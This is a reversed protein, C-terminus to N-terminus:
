DTGVHLKKLLDTILTKYYSKSDLIYFMNCATFSERNYERAIDDCAKKVDDQDYDHVAILTNPYQMIKKLDSYCEQYTHGGDVFAFKPEFTLEFNESLTKHFVTTSLFDKLVYRVAPLNHKHKYILKQLHICEEHPCDSNSERYYKTLNAQPYSNNGEFDSEFPDILHLVSNPNKYRSMTYATKGLWSGIEIIPGEELSSVIYALQYLDEKLAIGFKSNMDDTVISNLEEEDVHM